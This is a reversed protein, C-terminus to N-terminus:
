RLGSAATAFPAATKTGVTTLAAFILISALSAIVAYEIASVGANDGVFRRLLTLM